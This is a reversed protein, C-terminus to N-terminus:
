AVSYDYDFIEHTSYDYDLIEHASYDYDYDPKHLRGWGQRENANLAYIVCLISIITM